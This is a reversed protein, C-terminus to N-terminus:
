HVAFFSISCAPQFIVVYTAILCHMKLFCQFFKLTFQCVFCTLDLLINNVNSLFSETQFNDASSFSCM